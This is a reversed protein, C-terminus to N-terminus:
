SFFVCMAENVQAVSMEANVELIKGRYYKRLDERQIKYEQIRKKIVNLNKDDYRQKIEKSGCKKCENVENIYMFNYINECNLCMFRNAIREIVVNDSIQLEIIFNIVQNMEKLAKNLFKAQNLNRPFGDLIFNSVSLKLQKYIIDCIFKDEVLTGSEIANKVKIDINDATVAARLLNGAAIISLGYKKSLMCSQTGKGSGPPGFIIVNM